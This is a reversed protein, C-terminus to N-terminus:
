SAPGEGATMDLFFRELDREQRRLEGVIFGHEALVRGLAFGDHNPMRVLLANDDRTLDTIWPVQRLVTEARDPDDVRVVTM